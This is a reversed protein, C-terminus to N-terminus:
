QGKHVHTTDGKVVHMHKYKSQAETKKRVKGINRGKIPHDLMTLLHKTGVLWEYEM